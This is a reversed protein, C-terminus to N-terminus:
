KDNRWTHLIEGTEQNMLHAWDTPLTECCDLFKEYASLEMVIPLNNSHHYFIAVLTM